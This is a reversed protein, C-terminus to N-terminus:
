IVKHMHHTLNSFLRTSIGFHDFRSGVCCHHASKILCQRRALGIQAPRLPLFHRMLRGMGTGSPCISRSIEIREVWNAPWASLVTYARTFVLIRTPPPRWEEVHTALCCFAHNLKSAAEHPLSMPPASPKNRDRFLTCGPLDSPLHTHSSRAQVSMFTGTPVALNGISKLVLCIAGAQGTM